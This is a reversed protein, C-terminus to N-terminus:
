LAKTCFEFLSHAFALGWRSCIRVVPLETGSLTCIAKPVTDVGRHDLVLAAHREPRTTYCV